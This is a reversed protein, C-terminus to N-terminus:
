SQELLSGLNEFAIHEKIVEKKVGKIKIILENDNKLAYVKPALFVAQDYIGELKLAGLETPNVYHEPLPGDFYLSDTDTYYLNPLDTRNKFKSMHIRAYATVASAIAINVSPFGKSKQKPELELDSHPDTTYFQVLIHNTGIEEILTISSEGGPIKNILDSYTEKKIIVTTPLDPAMGFKGYLSNLLLKAIMNM